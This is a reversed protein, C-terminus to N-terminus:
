ELGTVKMFREEGGSVIYRGSPAFKAVNVVGEHVASQLVTENWQKGTTVRIENGATTLLNGGMYDFNVSTVHNDQHVVEVPANDMKRLDFVRCVDSKTWAAAFYTGKSSFDLSIVDGSGEFTTLAKVVENQARIDWIKITGGKLGTALM